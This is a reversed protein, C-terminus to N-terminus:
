PVIVTDGNKLVINQEPNKGKIYDKYNFRFQIQRGNETRLIKIKTKKAYEKFGGARGILELVTMPSGFPFVGTHGVEGMIAVSQSKIDKVMVTVVPSSVFDKLRESIREQLQKTTLGSAQIENVLPLTIKGDPRVVVTTSLEPEKWVNIALTDEAGIVFEESPEASHSSGTATQIATSASEKAKQKDREKQEGTLVGAILFFVVLGCFVRKM